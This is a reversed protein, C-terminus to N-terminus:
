TNVRYTGEGLEIKGGPLGKCEIRVPPCGTGMTCEADRGIASVRRSFRSRDRERM